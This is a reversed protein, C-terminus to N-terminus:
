LCLVTNSMACCVERGGGQGQDGARPLHSLQGLDTNGMSFPDIVYLPVGLM